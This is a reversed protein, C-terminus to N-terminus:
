SQKPTVPLLGRLRPKARRYVSPHKGSYHAAESPSRFTPLRSWDYEEIALGVDWLELALHRSGLDAFEVRRVHETDIWVTGPLARLLQFRDVAPAPLPEDTAMSAKAVDIRVDLKKCNTAHLVADAEEVAEIAGLMLRLLWLMDTDNAGPPWPRLTSLYRGSRGGFREGDKYIEAYSGYDIMYRGTAPELIGKASLEGFRRGGMAASWAMRFTLKIPLFLVRLLGGRRRRRPPNVRQTNWGWDFAVKASSAAL